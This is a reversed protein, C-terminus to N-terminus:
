AETQRASIKITEKIKTWGHGKRMRKLKHNKGPKAM